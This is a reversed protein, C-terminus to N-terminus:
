KNKKKSPYLFQLVGIDRHVTRGEFVAEELFNNLYEVAYPSNQDVTFQGLTNRFQVSDLKFVKVIKILMCIKSSYKLESLYPISAYPPDM